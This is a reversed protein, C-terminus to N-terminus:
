SVHSFSQGSLSHPRLWQFSTTSRINWVGILIRGRSETVHHGPELADKLGSRWARRECTPLQTGPSLSCALYSSIQLLFAPGEMRGLRRRGERLCKGILKVLNLFIHVGLSGFMKEMERQSSHVHVRTCAYVYTTALPMHPFPLPVGSWYEQRSFGMSSPAQFAATWITDSLTPCSQAVESESEHM